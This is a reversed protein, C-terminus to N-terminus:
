ESVVRIASNHQGKVEFSQYEVTKGGSLISDGLTNSLNAATATGAALRLANEQDTGGCICGETPSSERGDEVTFTIEKDTLGLPCSEAYKPM